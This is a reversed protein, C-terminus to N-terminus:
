APGHRRARYAAVTTRSACTNGCFRRTRNRSQDVFFNRCGRAACRGLTLGPDSTAVHALSAAVVQGIWQGPALGDRAFHIHWTGTNDHDSLHLDPPYDAILTRIADPPTADVIQQLAERVLAVLRTLEGAKPQEVAHETLLRRSEPSLEDADEANALEVAFRTVNGIYDIYTM